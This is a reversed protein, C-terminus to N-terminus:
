KGKTKGTGADKEQTPAPSPAPAPTVQAADSAAPATPALSPPIVPTPPPAPPIEHPEPAGAILARRQQEKLDEPILVPSPIAPNAPILGTADAATARGSKPGYKEAFSGDKLADIQEQLRNVQAELDQKAKAERVPDGAALQAETPLHHASAIIRGQYLVSGGAAITAEMEARTMPNMHAGYM